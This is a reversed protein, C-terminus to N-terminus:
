AIQEYSILKIGEETVGIVALVTQGATEMIVNYMAAGVTATAELPIVETGDGFVPVISHMGFGLIGSVEFVLIFTGNGTAGFDLKWTLKQKGDGQWEKLLYWTDPVPPDPMEDVEVIAGSTMDAWGEPRKLRWYRPPDVSVDVEADRSIASKSEPGCHVATLNSYTLGLPLAFSFQPLDWQVMDLRVIYHLTQDEELGVGMWGPVVDIKCQNNGRILQWESGGFSPMEVTIDWRELDLQLDYCFTGTENVQALVAQNLIEWVADLLATDANAWHSLRQEQVRQSRLATTVYSMAPAIMMAGLALFVLVLILAHGSNGRQSTM